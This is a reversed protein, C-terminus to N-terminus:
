ADRMLHCDQDQRRARATKAMVSRPRSRRRMPAVETRNIRNAGLISAASSTVRRRPKM